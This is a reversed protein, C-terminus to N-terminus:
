HHAESTSHGDDETPQEPQPPPTPGVEGDYVPVFYMVVGMIVTNLALVISEPFEVGAYTNMLWVFLTVIAGVFASAKVKTLIKNSPTM